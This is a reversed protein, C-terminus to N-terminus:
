TPCALSLLPLGESPTLERGLDSMETLGQLATGVTSAKPRPQNQCEVWHALVVTGTGEQM